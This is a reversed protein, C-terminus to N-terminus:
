NASHYREVGKKWVWRAMLTGLVDETVMFVLYVMYSEGKVSFVPLNISILIPNGWTLNIRISSPYITLPRSSFEMVYEPLGPVSNANDRWLVVSVTLQNLLLLLDTALLISIIFFVIQSWELKYSLFLYLQIM